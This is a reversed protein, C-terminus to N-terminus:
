AKLTLSIGSFGYTKTKDIGVIVYIYGGNNASSLTAVACTLTASTGSISPATTLGGFANDKGSTSYWTSFYTTYNIDSNGDIWVSTTGGGAPVVKYFIQLDASELQVRAVTGGAPVSGTTPTAGFGSIAL